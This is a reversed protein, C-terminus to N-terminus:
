LDSSKIRLKKYLEQAYSSLEKNEYMFIPKLIKCESKSSKKAEIIILRARSEKDKYISLMQTLKLKYKQLIVCLEQLAGAEYCLYLSANAKLLSNAKSILEELPLFQAFKSIAKHSNQTQMAGQRYFPPNCLVFDFKEKSKFNRFDECIVQAEIKNQELNKQSLMCNQEQIDLLSLKLKPYANKLLIGIIGCGCGVELLSKNQLNQKSVFDFLLLSDSNYRYGQKLQYFLLENM